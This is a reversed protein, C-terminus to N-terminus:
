ENKLFLYLLLVMCFLVSFSYIYLPIPVGGGAVFSLDIGATVFVIIIGFGVAALIKSLREKKRSYAAVAGLLLLYAIPYFIKDAIDDISEISFGRTAFSYVAGLIGLISFVLAVYHRMKLRNRNNM